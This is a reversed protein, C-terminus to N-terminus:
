RRYNATVAALKQWHADSLARADFYIVGAAGAALSVTTATQMEDPTLSPIFVGSYLPTTGRLAHVGDAVASGIWPVTENYFNHYIMPMLGDIRWNVWDQRVLQRALSPTPFVAATLQKGHTHVDEHISSVLSTIANWRFQVWAHNAPPDELRLPDLGSQARFLERCVECYCFDFDPYEKDQVLNYKPWLGVPLIVDPFRIYDLHVSKIGPVAALERIQARLYAQVEPRSPCMFRYYDVYPPKLATSHGSRSVAYWDPHEKLPQANMMVVRWVHVDLGENGALPVISDLTELKEHSVNPLVMTIGAKRMREFARKWEEETAYHGGIWVGFQPKAISAHLADLSTMGAAAFAALKLFAKRDM